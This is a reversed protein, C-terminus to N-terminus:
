QDVWEYETIGGKTIALSFKGMEAVGGVTRSAWQGEHSPDALLLNSDIPFPNAQTGLLSGNVDYQPGPESYPAPDIQISGTCVKNANNDCNVGSFSSASSWNVPSGDISVVLYPNGSPGNFPMTPLSKSGKYLPNTGTKWNDYVSDGFLPAYEYDWYVTEAFNYVNLGCPQAVTTLTVAFADNGYNNCTSCSVYSTTPGKGNYNNLAGVATFAPYVLGNTNAYAAQLGQSLFAAFNADQSQPISLVAQMASTVWGGEYFNDNPDFEIGTGSSQVRYRQSALISWALSPPANTATTQPAALRLLQLAVSAATLENSQATTLTPCTTSASQVTNVGESSSSADMACGAALSAASSILILSLYGQKM